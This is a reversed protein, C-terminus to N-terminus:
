QRFLFFIRESRGWRDRDRRRTKVDSTKSFLHDKSHKILQVGSTVEM